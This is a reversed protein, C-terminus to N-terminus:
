AGVRAKGLMSTMVRSLDAQVADLLSKVSLGALRERRSAMGPPPSGVTHVDEEPAPRAADMVDRPTRHPSFESIGHREAVPAAMHPELPDQPEEPLPKREAHARFRRAMAEAEGEHEARAQEHQMVGRLDGRPSPMARTAGQEDPPSAQPLPKRLIRKAGSYGPELTESAHGPASSSGMMAEPLGRAAAERRDMGESQRRRYATTMTEKPPLMAPDDKEVDCQIPVDGRPMSSKAIEAWQPHLFMSCLESGM